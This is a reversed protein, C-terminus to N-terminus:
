GSSSTMEDVLVNEIAQTFEVADSPAVEAIQALYKALLASAVDSSSNTSRVQTYFEFKTGVPQSSSAEHLAQATGWSSEVFSVEPSGCVSVMSRWGIVYRSAEDAGTTVTLCKYLVPPVQQAEDKIGSFFFKVAFAYPSEPLRLIAPKCEKGFITPLAKHLAVAADPFAFPVGHAEAVEVFECGAAEDWRRACRFSYEAGPALKPMECSALVSDTLDCMSGLELRFANVVQMDDEDFEMVPKELRCHALSPSAANVSRVADTFHLAVAHHSRVLARLERNCAEAQTRRQKQRLAVGRWGAVLRGGLVFPTVSTAAKRAQLKDLNGVLTKATRRLFALEAKKKARYARWRESLLVSAHTRRPAVTKGEGGGEEVRDLVDCGLSDHNEPEELDDPLLMVDVSDPLLMSDIDDDGAPWLPDGLAALWSEDMDLLLSGNALPPAEEAADEHADTDDM